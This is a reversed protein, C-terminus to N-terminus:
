QMRNILVVRFQFVATRYNTTVIKLQVLSSESNTVQGAELWVKVRNAGTVVGSALVDLNNSLEATEHDGIAITDDELALWATLDYDFDLIEGSQMVFVNESSQFATFRDATITRSAPAEVDFPYDIVSEIVVSRTAVGVNGTSDAVSYTLTITTPASTDVTAPTVQVQSTLNGDVNDSASFGPDVWPYGAKLIVNGGNLTIVPGETDEPVFETVTVTRTTSAENGSADTATYLLQYTGPTTTDVSGTVVVGSVTIDGDANDTATYGPEVFETGEVLSINGGTLSIIPATVDALTTSVFDASEGGITLTTTRVGDYGGSSYEDSTTHRVRVRYNLRLNTGASTWGGFTAGGDTSVSYESTAAGSITAPVDVGADVGTVQITNSTVPFSRAQNNLATFSFPNPTTDVAASTTFDLSSTEGFGNANLARINLTYATGGVLGTLQAPDSVSAWAGGDLNYEYGTVDVGPYSFGITATTRGITQSDISVADDPGTDVIVGATAGVNNLTLAANNLDADQITGNDLTLSTLAIGDSANDGQQITYTFVTAATGTGSAYTAKRNVGSLNLNIAPTGTVDVVEDWNVTLSLAQGLTYTADAPVTVSDIVSAFQDAIVASATWQATTGDAYLIEFTATDTGSYGADPTYIDNLDNGWLSGAEAGAADLVGNSFPVAVRHYSFETLVQDFFVSNSDVLGYPSTYSHTQTFAFSILASETGNFVTANYTGTALDGPLRLTVTGGAVTGDVVVGNAAGVTFGTIDGAFGSITATVQQYQDGTNNTNINNITAGGAYAGTYGMEVTSGTIYGLNLDM